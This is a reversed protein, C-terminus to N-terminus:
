PGVRTLMKCDVSRLYPLVCESGGEEDRLEVIVDTWVTLLDQMRRLIWAQNSELLRTLALCNLKRPKPHGINGFEMYQNAILEYGRHEKHSSVHGFWEDLLWGLTTDLSEGKQQSIYTCINVFVSPSCLAIRGLLEFFHTMILTDTRNYKKNPGTTQHADFADRVAGFVHGLFGSELLMGVVSTLGEEGGVVHAVRIMVEVITTLISNAEPKLNGERLLSSFHTSISLGYQDLVERPALIVYGELVDLVRKLSLTGLELCPILYPLLDLFEPPAPAATVKIVADWLELAEDLLFVQM